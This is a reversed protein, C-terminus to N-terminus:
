ANPLDGCVTEFALRGRHVPDPLGEIELTLDPRVERVVGRAIPEPWAEPPESEPIGEPWIRVRRGIVLSDRRYARFLDEPGKALLARYREALADLTCVLAARLSIPGAGPSDLLSGVTPVFPTPAVEPVTEVNLGIGLVVAELTEGQTVTATLVGAVKRGAVLIDNVWKIGPEVRGHTARRIGETVAVAPLMTMAPAFEAAPVDPFLAATLHLNGRVASWGRDRHGHFGDGEIAVSAIAGSPRDNGALARRVVDFQSEKAKRILFIRRWFGPGARLLRLDGGGGLASWLARDSESLSAPDGDGWDARDAVLSLALDDGDALNLTPSRL